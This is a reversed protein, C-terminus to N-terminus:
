GGGPGPAGPDGDSDPASAPTPPPTTEVPTEETKKDKKSMINETIEPLIAAKIIVPCANVNM